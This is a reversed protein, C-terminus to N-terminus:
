RLRFRLVRARSRVRDRPPAPQIRAGGTAVGAIVPSRAGTGDVTVIRLSASGGSAADVLAFMADRHGPAVLRSTSQSCRLGFVGAEDDVTSPQGTGGTEIRVTRGFASSTRRVDYSAIVFVRRDFVGPREPQVFGICLRGAPEIRAAAVRCGRPAFFASRPTAVRPAPELNITPGVIDRRVVRPIARVISFASRWAAIGGPPSFAGGERFYRLHEPRVSAPMTM